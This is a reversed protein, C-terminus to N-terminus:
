YLYIRDIEISTALLLLEERIETLPHIMFRTRVYCIIAVKTNILLKSTFVAM